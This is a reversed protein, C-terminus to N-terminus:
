ILTLNFNENFVTRLQTLRNNVKNKLTDIKEKMKSLLNNTEEQTTDLISKRELVDTQANRLMKSGSKLKTLQVKNEETFETRILSLIFLLIIFYFIKM